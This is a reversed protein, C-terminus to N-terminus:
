VRSVSSKTSCKADDPGRFADEVVRIDYLCRLYAVPLPEMGPYSGYLSLMKEFYHSGLQINYDTNVTLSSADYGLGLKGAVERATGPMLQMIGLAGADSAQHKGGASEVDVVALALDPDLQEETAITKVMELITKTAVPECANAAM